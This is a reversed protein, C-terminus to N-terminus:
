MKAAMGNSIEGEYIFRANELSSIESNCFECYFTEPMENMVKFVLGSSKKCRFCYLEYFVKM